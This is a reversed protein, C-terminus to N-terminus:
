SISTMIVGHLGLFIANRGMSGRAEGLFGVKHCRKGLRPVEMLGLVM